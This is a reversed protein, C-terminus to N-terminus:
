HKTIMPFSTSIAPFVIPSSVLILRETFVASQIIPPIIVSSYKFGSEELTAAFCTEQDTVQNGTGQSNADGQSHLRKKITTIPEIERRLLAPNKSLQTLFTQITKSFTSAM